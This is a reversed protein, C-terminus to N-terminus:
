HIFEFIIILILLIIGWITHHILLWVLLWILAGGLGVLIVLPAACVIFLILMFVLVLLATFICGLM